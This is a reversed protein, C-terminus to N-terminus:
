WDAETYRIVGRINKGDLMDQYGDNVGELSYTRTIMDDLNLQGSKYMALLNPIEVRANGGGFITGKLDKQLMSFLFLNLKVDMDTMAGMATVVCTGFKSTLLLAEEVYEGRMEGVTIITKQAMLGNTLAIIPEIAAAASEFAHTAGFKLAQERKWPVPDIAFIQRAGSAVAGQLASMGVGGVGMIVVSEGPKVEAMRTASGWGTPVGCGVLAAVDFPIDKDIKVVSTEHVVMYPSFTGLLCMPIVNEGRAHIRFTGDSIALGSLLGMGLDCLNQHGASCAPCRGCAPVFSLVVHDGVELDKVEPGLKTIVGSGEHGGMVPFSAMPMSGTVIHHDSHCMGAAEMRIQVEGAVPDGIEIEEVSWPENLGWLIAGKTKM